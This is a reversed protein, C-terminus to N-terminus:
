NSWKRALNILEGALETTTNYHEAFYDLTLFNNVWDLYFQELIM